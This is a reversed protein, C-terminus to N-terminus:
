EDGPDPVDPGDPRPDADGDIIARKWTGRTFWATAVIAGVINGLAMGIWIGTAGLGVIFALAYVTPVRGLWLTVISFTMATKTNGSGRFAGLVVQLVGIFLFEVSRIRLYDSGLRVTEAAGPTDAPIFISIFASPFLAAIIGVALMVGGSVKVALWVADEARTPNDAGLNQGVMTNTARGLGMAPLFVLSILRNGLGFAAVVATPFTTVVATLVIMATASASQEAASPVGVRVIQEILDLDPTLDALAVDPGATTYFLVYVGVLTAVARSVITALAAGEIGLAPLGAWGFILFPDLVVNIAVSLFMVRM